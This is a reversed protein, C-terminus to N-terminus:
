LPLFLLLSHARAAILPWLLKQLSSPFGEPSLPEM